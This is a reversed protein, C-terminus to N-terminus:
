PRERRARDSVVLVPRPCTRAVAEAISGLVARKFGSRGHSGVAVLDVGLREAASVIAESVSAAEIVSVNTTIGAAEAEAPVLSRLRAELSERARADLPAPADPVMAPALLHVTCLEVHGGGERLLGYAPRIAERSADSFDTPVLISTTGPLDRRAPAAAEPVCLVPVSAARLVAAPAIVSWRHSRGRPIGIVVGDAGLLAAEDVLADGADDSAIRLRVSPVRGLAAEADRRTDRELLKVLEPGRPRSGWPDALGYRLAAEPPWYLRVISVDCARSSEFTRM